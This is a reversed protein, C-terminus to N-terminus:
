RRQTNILENLKAITTPLDANPDLLQVGNTNASINAAASAAVANIADNLQQASVDGPLGQSCPNEQPPRVACPPVSRGAM